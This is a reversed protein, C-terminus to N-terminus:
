QVIARSLAANRALAARASRLNQQLEATRVRAKDLQIAQQFTAAAATFREQHLQLIGIQNLGDVAFAPQLAIARQYATISQDLSDMRALGYAMTLYAPAHYPMRRLLERCQAIAEDFRGMTILADALNERARYDGPLLKLVISFEVAATEPQRQQLFLGYNFRLWHDRPARTIAYGYTEAAEAVNDSGSAAERQLERLEEDNGLRYTFPAQSLWEGVERAVRQRDFPTLALLRDAEGQSPLEVSAASQRAEAPLLTVVKPFLARALLYNGRPNLHVHEYFLERGTVGHPSADTLIAEGDVLGVGAGAASAVSRIIRNM